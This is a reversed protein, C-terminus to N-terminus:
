RNWGPVLTVHPNLDIAIPLTGGAYIDAIRGKKDVNLVVRCYPLWDWDLQRSNGEDKSKTPTGGMAKIAEAETMARRVDLVRDAIKCAEAMRNPIPPQPKPARPKPIRATPQVQPTSQPPPAANRQAAQRREMEERMESAPDHNTFAVLGTFSVIAAVAVLAMRATTGM